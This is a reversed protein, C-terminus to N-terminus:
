KSAKHARILLVIQLCGSGGGGKIARVLASYKIEERSGKIAIYVVCYQYDCYRTFALATRPSDKRSCHM